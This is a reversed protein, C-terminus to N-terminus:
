KDRGSGGDPLAEGTAEPGGRVESEPGVQRRQPEPATDAEPPQDPKRETRSAADDTRIDDM